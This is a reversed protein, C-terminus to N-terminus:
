SVARWRFLCYFISLTTYNQNTMGVCNKFSAPAHESIRMRGVLKTRKRWMRGLYIVTVMVVFIQYNVTTNTRGVRSEKSSLPVGSAQVIRYASRPGFYKESLIL